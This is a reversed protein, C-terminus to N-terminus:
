LHNLEMKKMAQTNEDKEEAEKLQLDDYEKNIQNLQESKKKVMKAVETDQTYRERRIKSEFANEEKELDLKLQEQQKRWEDMLQKEILVIGSLKTDIDQYLDRNIKRFRQIENPDLDSGDTESKDDGKNKSDDEKREARGSM